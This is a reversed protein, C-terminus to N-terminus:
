NHIPNKLILKMRESANGNYKLLFISIGVQMRMRHYSIRASLNGILTKERLDLSVSHGFKLGQSIIERDLKRKLTKDGVQKGPCRCMKRDGWEQDRKPKIM